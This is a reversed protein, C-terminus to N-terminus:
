PQEMDIGGTEVRPSPRIPGFIAALPKVNQIDAGSPSTKAFYRNM